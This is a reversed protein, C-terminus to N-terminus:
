SVLAREIKKKVQPAPTPALALPPGRTFILTVPITFIEM